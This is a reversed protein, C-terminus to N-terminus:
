KQYRVTISGVAQSIQISLYETTGRAGPSYYYNGSKEFGTPLSLGSVARSIELRVPMDQPIELVMEGVAQGIEVAYDGKPLTITIEGVALDANLSELMLEDLVLGMSGVGLKTDLALPVRPTLGLDWQWSEDFPFVIPTNHEISYVLTNGRMSSSTRVGAGDSTSVRGVILANSDTLASLALDGVAMSINLEAREAQGLPENISTAVTTEAPLRVGALGLAVGLVGLVLLTTPLALWISRRGLLIDLGATVLLLPWLRFLTNWAEWGVIGFNYLLFVGGLGIWFVPGFIERKRFLADLGIAIFLLPWLNWIVSWASQGLYGLNDLLLLFGIAILILPWLIAGVRPRSSKKQLQNTGM